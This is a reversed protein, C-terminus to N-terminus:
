DRYCDLLGVMEEPTWSGSTVEGPTLMKCDMAHQRRVSSAHCAIEMADFVNRATVPYQFRRHEHDAVPHDTQDYLYQAWYVGGSDGFTPKFWSGVTERNFYVENGDEDEGPIRGKSRFLEDEEDIDSPAVCFSRWIAHATRDGPPNSCLDPPPSQWMKDRADKYANMTKVVAPAAGSAGIYGTSRGSHIPYGSTCTSEEMWENQTWPDSSDPLGYACGRKDPPPM